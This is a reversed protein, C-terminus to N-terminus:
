LAIYIQKHVIHHVKNEIELFFQYGSPSGICEIDKRFLPEVQRDNLIKGIITQKYNTM